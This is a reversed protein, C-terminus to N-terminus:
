CRGVIWSKTNLLLKRFDDPGAIERISGILDTSINTLDFSPILDTLIGPIITSILFKEEVFLGPGQTLLKYRLM